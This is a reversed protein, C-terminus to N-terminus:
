MSWNAKSAAFAQPGRRFIEVPEDPPDDVREAFGRQADRQHARQLVKRIAREVGRQPVQNRRGAPLARDRNICVDQCGAEGLLQSVQHPWM